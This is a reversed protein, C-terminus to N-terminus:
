SFRSYPNINITELYLGLYKIKNLLDGKRLGDMIATEVPDGRYSDEEEEPPLYRSIMEYFGVPVKEGKFKLEQLNVFITVGKDKSFDYGDASSAFGVNGTPGIGDIKFKGSLKGDNFEHETKNYKEYLYKAAKDPIANIFDREHEEDSKPKYDAPFEFTVIEYEGDEQEKIYGLEKAIINKIVYEELKTKKSVNEIVTKITKNEFFQLANIDGQNCYPFKKCKNKVKVYTGGGGYKPFKPDRVSRLEKEVTDPNSLKLPDKKPAGFPVDYVGASAVGTAETAEIKSLKSYYDPDEYLHDMAIEMAVMMENTHEMEVQIGERLNDFMEDVSRDHMKAIDEITMGESKGGEIRDEKVEGGKPFTKKEESNSMPGFLPGVFAGASGSGTAETAEEKEVVDKKATASAIFNDSSDLGPNITKNQQFARDLSTRIIKSLDEETLKM